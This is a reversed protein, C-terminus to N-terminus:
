QLVVPLNRVQTGQQMRILYMGKPLQGLDLHTQPAVIIQPALMMQGWTNLVSINTEQEPMMTWDLTLLGASPNPYVRVGAAWDKEAVGICIEVEVLIDDTATCGFPNTVTVAYVSETGVSIDQSTAGNSWSYTAGTNGADLGLTQGECITTDAGLEVTPVPNVQLEVTDTDSCGTVLTVQVSYVGSETVTISPTTAGTSWITAAGPYGTNFTASGGECLAQDAGLNIVPTAANILTIADSAVCGDSNIVTVTYAGGTNVEISQTSEGNSWNYTAGTNGADLLLTQGACLNQNPGLNVVPNQASTIFIFGTGECGFENTVSVSYGGANDVVISQTTDGTNWLYTIFVGANLTLTDNPCLAQDAGLDVSPFDSQGLVVTDRSTCGFSTIATVGYIGPETFIRNLDANGDSWLTQAFGQSSLEVYYDLPGCAVFDDGLDVKCYPNIYNVHKATPLRYEYLRTTKGTLVLSGDANPSAIGFDNDNIVALTSDNVIALGEPKDHQREWGLELLDLFLEKQVVQVGAAAANVANDLQELTLGNFNDTTVPTAGALSFKYINKANWGNREAHELVLFEENNIATLDGIKWDRSRIEGLVPDHEYVFTKFTGSAPDIELIRHLRTANGVTLNPNSSPSQLIAYIKGNPTYAVGEFGRNPRRKGYTSDISIDEAQTAFPTFRKKVKFQEDLQWVSTGYEDCIWYNGENDQAIGESDLGWIDNELVAGSTDAWAIEGTNGAGVPLPLGTVGSADPRKVFDLSNVELTTG